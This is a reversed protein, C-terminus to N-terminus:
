SLRNFERQSSKGGIGINTYEQPCIICQYATSGIALDLCSYNIDACQPVFSSIKSNSMPSIKCVSTSPDKKVCENIDTILSRFGVCQSDISHSSNKTVFSILYKIPFL